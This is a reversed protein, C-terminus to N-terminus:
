KKGKKLKQYESNTIIGDDRM